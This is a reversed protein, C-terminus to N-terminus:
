PCRASSPPRLARRWIAVTGPGTSTWPAGDRIKAVTERDMRFPILHFMAQSLWVYSVVEGLTMPQQTATSRYFAEFIMIRILGWFFQTGLGAVAAARYQLLARFRAGFLTLYGRM